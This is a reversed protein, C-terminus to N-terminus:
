RGSKATVPVRGRDFWTWGLGCCIGVFLALSGLGGM